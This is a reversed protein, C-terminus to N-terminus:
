FLQSPPQAEKRCELSFLILTEKLLAKITPLTYNPQLMSSFSALSSSPIFSCPEDITVVQDHRSRSRDLIMALCHESQLTLDRRTTAYCRGYTAPFFSCFVVAFQKLEATWRVFAASFLQLSHSNQQGAYLLQLFCSWQLSHSNQQGAYLLQLFYSSVTSYSTLMYFSSFIVALQPICDRTTQHLLMM